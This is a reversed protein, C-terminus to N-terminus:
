EYLTEETVIPVMYQVTTRTGRPQKVSISPKVWPKASQLDLVIGCVLDTNHLENFRKILKFTFETKFGKLHKEPFYYIQRENLIRNPVGGPNFFHAPDLLDNGLLPVGYKVEQGKAIENSQYQRLFPHDFHNDGLSLFLGIFGTQWGIAEDGSFNQWNGRGIIITKIDQGPENTDTGRLKWVIAKDNEYSEWDGPFLHLPEQSEYNRSMIDWHGFTGKNTTITGVGGGYQEDIAYNRPKGVTFKHSM